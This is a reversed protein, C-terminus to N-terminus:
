HKTATSYVLSMDEFEEILLKNVGVATHLERLSMMGAARGNSLSHSRLVTTAAAILAVTAFASIMLQKMRIRRETRYTSYNRPRSTARDGFVADSLLVTLRRYTAEEDNHM